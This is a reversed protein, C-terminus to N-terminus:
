NKFLISEYLEIYKRASINWRSDENAANERVSGWIKKIRYVELARRFMQLFSEGTFDTFIFGNGTGMEPDFQSITDALGGVSHALPVAGYRMAAMQTLGCPEYRSPILFIDSAAYIKHALPENYSLDVRMWDPHERELELLKEEYEKQGSGLIILAVGKDLLRKANEIVLDIGKQWTLRSVMGVLPRDNRDTNISLEELLARKNASKFADWDGKFHSKLHIDDAPSWYDYDIGNLIGTYDDGRAALIKQLGAGNVEDHLTEERYTPSVTNLKDSYLIGLKLLNLKNYHLYDNEPFIKRDLRTIKFGSGPFEGQFALNHLTLLTGIDSPSGGRRRREAVLPTMLAAQWDHAHIIDPTWDWKEVTRMIARCFLTYRELNDAYGSDPTNGYIGPRDFYRKCDVFYVPLPFDEARHISVRHVRRGIHSRFRFLNKRIGFNGNKVTAYFPIIVRVDIDLKDLTIPLGYAVDALGGVKAFPAMESAVMLIKLKHLM